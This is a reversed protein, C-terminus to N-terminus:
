PTTTIALEPKAPSVIRHQLVLINKQLEELSQQLIAIHVEHYTIQAKLKEIDTRAEALHGMRKHMKHPIRANTQASRKRLNTLKRRTSTLQSKVKALMKKTAAQGRRTFQRAM